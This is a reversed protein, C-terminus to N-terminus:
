GIRVMSFLVSPQKILSSIINRFFQTLEADKLSNLIQSETKPFYDSPYEQYSKLTLIHKRVSFPWCRAPYGLCFGMEKDVSQSYELAPIIFIGLFESM